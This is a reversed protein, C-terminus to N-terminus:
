APGTYLIHEWFIGYVITLNWLWLNKHPRQSKPVGQVHRRVWGLRIKTTTLSKVSQPDQTQAESHLVRIATHDDRIFHFSEAITFIYEHCVECMPGHPFGAPNCDRQSM